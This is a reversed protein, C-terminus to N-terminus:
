EDTDELYRVQSVDRIIEGDVAVENENLLVDVFEPNEITQEERNQFIVVKSM